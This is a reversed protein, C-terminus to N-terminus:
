NNYLDAYSPPPHVRLTKPEMNIEQDPYVTNSSLNVLCAAPPQEPYSSQPQEPYSPLPQEPYSPLPQQRYTAPPEQSYQASSQEPYSPPLQQALPHSATNPQIIGGSRLEIQQRNSTGIRSKHHKRIVVAAICCVVVVIIVFIFGGVVGGVVPGIISSAALSIFSCM